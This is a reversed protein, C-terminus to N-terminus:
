TDRVAQTRRRDAIGLAPATHAGQDEEDEGGSAGTQAAKVAAAGTRDEPAVWEAGALRFYDREDPVPMVEGTAKIILAGDHQRYKTKYLIHTVLARSFEADGTRITLIEGFNEATATFIDVQILASGDAGQALTTDKTAQVKTWAKKYKEGWAPRDHAFPRERYLEGAAVLEELKKDLLNTEEVGSVPSNGFLDLQVANCWVEIKPVAVIEIDGVAEKGRRLSGAIEIQECVPRLKEVIELARPLAVDRKIRIGTSM